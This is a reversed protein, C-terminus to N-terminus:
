YTIKHCILVFFLINGINEVCVMIQALKSRAYGSGIYPLPIYNKRQISENSKLIEFDVHGDEHFCSSTNVIRCDFTNIDQNEISDNDVSSRIMLPMLEHTILFHSLYNTQWVTEHGDRTMELTAPGAIGANNSLIHLPYGSEKYEAIFSRTSELSSLDCHMYEAEGGYYEDNTQAAANILAAALKGRRENRCALVVHAGHLVMYKAIEFGIGGKNSGTVIVYYGRLDKKSRMRDNFLSGHYKLRFHITLATMLGIYGASVGLLIKNFLQRKQLTRTSALCTEYLRWAYLNRRRQITAM